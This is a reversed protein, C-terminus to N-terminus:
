KAEMRTIKILRTRAQDPSRDDFTIEIGEPRLLPPLRRLQSSLRTADKPWRRSQQNLGAVAMLESLLQTATGEFFGKKRILEMVAGAVPDAEIADQNTRSRNAAYFAEFTGPPCGLARFAAESWKAFDMMRTSRQLKVTPLNRLAGSVTDLFAGFIRPEAAEFAAWFEQESQHSGEEIMPLIIVISRDAFDARSTLSPIGNLLVPRCVELLFEEDDTYLKRTSFAGKTAVRCIADSLDNKVYSLNDLAVVWGNKAALLLDREDRPASRLAAANPDILRRIVRCTVSKGAGHEGNVILIPYPGTPRLAAIMCAVVMAFDADTKVNLFKRLEPISGGAQPMPFSQLGRPRIFRVPPQDVIRWGNTSVEVANWEPQGLDIYISGNHGAV